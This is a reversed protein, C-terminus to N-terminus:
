RERRGPLTSAPRGMPRSHVIDAPRVGLYRRAIKQVRSVSVTASAIEANIRYGKRKERVIRGAQSEKLRKVAQM